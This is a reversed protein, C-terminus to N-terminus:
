PGPLVVETWFQADEQPPRRHPFLHVTQPQPVCVHVGQLVYIFGTRLFVDIRDSGDMHHVPTWTSIEPCGPHIKWPKRPKPWRGSFRMVKKIM